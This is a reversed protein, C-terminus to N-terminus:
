LQKAERVSCVCFSANKQLCGCLNTVTKRSWDHEKLLFCSLKHWKTPAKERHSSAHSRSHIANFYFFGFRWACALLGVKLIAVADEIVASSHTEYLQYGGELAARVAEINPLFEKMFTSGCARLDEMM